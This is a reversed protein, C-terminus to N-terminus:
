ELKFLNNYLPCDHVTELKGNLLIVQCHDCSETIATNSNAGCRESPITLENYFRRLRLQFATDRITSVDREKKEELEIYGQYFIRAETEGLGYEEKIYEVVEDEYQILYDYYQSHEISNIVSHLYPYKEFIEESEVLVYYIYDDYVTDMLYVLSDNSKVSDYVIPLTDTRSVYLMCYLESMFRVNDISFNGSFGEAGKKNTAIREGDITIYNEDLNITDCEENLYSPGIIESQGHICIPLFVLGIFFVIKYM